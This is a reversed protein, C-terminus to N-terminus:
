TADIGAPQSRIVPEVVREDASSTEGALAAVEDVEGAPDDSGARREDRGVDLRLRVGRDRARLAEGDTKAEGVARERRNEIARAACRSQRLLVELGVGAPARGHEVVVPPELETVAAAGATETLAAAVLAVDRLERMEPAYEGTLSDIVRGPREVRHGHGELREAGGRGARGDVGSVALATSIHPIAAVKSRCPLPRASGHASGSIRCRPGSPSPTSAAGSPLRTSSCQLSAIM